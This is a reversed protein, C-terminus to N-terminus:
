LTDVQRAYECHRSTTTKKNIQANMQNHARMQQWITTSFTCRWIDHSNINIPVTATSSPCATVYDCFPPPSPPTPCMCLQQTFRLPQAPMPCPGASSSPASSTATEAYKRAEGGRGKHIRQTHTSHTSKKLFESRTMKM